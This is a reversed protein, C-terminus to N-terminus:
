AKEAKGTRSNAERYKCRAAHCSRLCLEEDTTVHFALVGTEEDFSAGLVGENFGSHSLLYLIQIASTLVLNSSFDEAFEEDEEVAEAYYRDILAMELDCDDCPCHQERLLTSRCRQAQLASGGGRGLRFSSALRMRVEYVAAKKKSSFNTPAHLYAKCHVEHVLRSSLGIALSLAIFKRAHPWCYVM